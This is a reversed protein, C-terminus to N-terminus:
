RLIQGSLTSLGYGHVRMTLTQGTALPTWKGAWQVYGTNTPNMAMMQIWPKMPHSVFFGLTSRNWRHALKGDVYMEAYGAVQDVKIGFRKRQESMDVGAFLRVTSSKHVAGVYAHLTVDLGRKGAYEFDIEDRSAPDYIWLPAVVLGDRLQPLTVETEWLGDSKAAMAGGGQIEPAGAADLTFLTDGGAVQKIRDFKWPIPSDANSWESGIWLGGWNWLWMSRLDLPQLVRQTPSRSVATGAQSTASKPSSDPATVLTTVPATTAGPTSVATPLPSTLPWSSSIGLLPQRTSVEPQLAATARREAVSASNEVGMNVAASAGIALAGAALGAVWLKKAM